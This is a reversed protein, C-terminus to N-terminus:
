DVLIRFGSDKKHKQIKQNMAQKAKELSMTLMLGKKVENFNLQAAGRKELVKVLHFGKPSEIIASRKGVDMKLIPKLENILEDESYFHDQIGGASAFKGDSYKRAMEAFKKGISLQYQVEQIKRSAKSKEDALIFGCYIQAFKVRDKVKFKETNESYYLLAEAENVQNEPVLKQQFWQDVAKSEAMYKAASEYAVGSAQLQKTLTEKGLKKEMEQLELFSIGINPELGVLEALELSAVRDYKEDILQKIFEKLGAENMKVKSLPNLRHASEKLFDETRLRKGDYLAIVPPLFSVDILLDSGPKIQSEGEQAYIPLTLIFLSLLFLNFLSLFKRNKSKQLLRKSSTM